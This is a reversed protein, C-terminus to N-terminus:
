PLSRTNPNPRTKGIAAGQRELFSISWSAPFSGDPVSDIGSSDSELQNRRVLFVHFRIAPQLCHIALFSLVEPPLKAGEERAPPDGTTRPGAPSPRGWRLWRMSQLALRDHGGILM